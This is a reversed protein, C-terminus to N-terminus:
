LVLSLCGAVEAARCGEEGKGSVGRHGAGTGIQCSGNSLSQSLVM